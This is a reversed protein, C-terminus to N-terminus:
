HLVAIVRQMRRLGRKGEINTYLALYGANCADVGDRGYWSIAAFYSGIEPALSTTM